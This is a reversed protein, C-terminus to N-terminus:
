TEEVEEVVLVDSSNIGLVVVLKYGSTLEVVVVAVVDSRSSSEELMGGYM